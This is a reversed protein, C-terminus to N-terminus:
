VGTFDQALDWASVKSHADFLVRIEDVGQELNIRTAIVTGVMGSAIHMVRQNVAFM